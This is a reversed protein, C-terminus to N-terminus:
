TGCFTRQLGKPVIVPSQWPEPPQKFPNACADLLQNLTTHSHATAATSAVVAQVVQEVWSLHATFKPNHARMVDAGSCLAHYSQLWQRGQHGSLWAPPTAGDLVEILQLFSHQYDIDHSQLLALYGQCLETSPSPLGLRQCLRVIWQHELAASFQRLTDAIHTVQQQADTRSLEANQHAAELRQKCAMALQQLAFFLAAPQRSYRYRKGSDVASFATDPRYRQLFAAPGFDFTEGTLTLNDTNLVGHIFGASMWHGGLEAFRNSIAQYHQGLCDPTGLIGDWAMWSQKLALLQLTGIRIHSPNIRVLIAASEMHQRQLLQSSHLVALMRSTPIGLGALAESYIYERLASALPLRGDGGLTWPTTGSGKLQIEIQRNCLKSHFPNRTVHDPALSAQGILHARGDGLRPAFQGFQHGAYGLCVPQYNSYPVHGSFVPRAASWDLTTATAKDCLPGWQIMNALEHNRVVYDCDPLPSPAAQQVWSPTAGATGLNIPLLTKTMAIAYSASM